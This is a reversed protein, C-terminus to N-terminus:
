SICHLINYIKNWATPQARFTKPNPSDIAPKTPKSEAQACLPKAQAATIKNDAILIAPTFHTM